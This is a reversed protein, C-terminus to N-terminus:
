KVKKDRNYYTKKVSGYIEKNTLIKWNGKENDYVPGLIRRYVKREFVNLQKRDRKTLTWTESAYTLTKDIITNKLRLKLKKSINKNQVFKQLMFYTKNANKIREQLDIQNSNNENLIVGLYKCNEVRKFKYNKIKLHGIKNKKLSNEKMEVFLKRIEIENKGILAIDDAYAFINLQEKGIKIGSPVLKISQIV